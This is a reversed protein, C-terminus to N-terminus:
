LKGQKLNFEERLLAYLSTDLYEGMKFVNKILTAEHRFGAKLLVKCSATNNAFIEAYIRRIDYNNFTYTVVEIVCSTMFGQGWYKEALWYGLEANKRYVDDKFHIGISGAAEGDIEIAWKIAKETPTETAISIFKEADTVTYPHPFGDRLKTFVNINNAYRTLADKDEAQWTRLTAKKSM